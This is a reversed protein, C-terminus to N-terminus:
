LHPNELLYQPAGWVKTYFWRRKWFALEWYKQESESNQTKIQWCTSLGLIDSLFMIKRIIGITGFNSSRNLVMVDESFFSGIHNLRPIYSSLIFLIEHVKDYFPSWLWMQFQLLVLCGVCRPIGNSLRHHFPWHHHHIQLFSIQFIIHKQYNYNLAM